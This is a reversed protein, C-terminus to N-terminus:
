LGRGLELAAQAPNADVTVKGGKGSTVKSNVGLWAGGDAKLRSQNGLALESGPTNLQLTISGADQLTPAAGPGGMRLSDNTWQGSVDLAVSPGVGIGLRPLAGAASDTTSVNQFTLNGALSTISSNIDIRPAEILLSSGPVLDLPLGAPLTVRTNSYIQTNSFGDDTLYSIPLQLTQVPLPTDDNIIVPSATRAFSVAPSLFDPPVASTRSLLGNPLGIVLTGGQAETSASRQYPGNVTGAALTGTLSMSPAAFQVTGANAGQVYGAEYHTFGPTAVVEKVGWQDYTQTFTPNVVGTYSLLPDATAIDYLKGNTGVLM